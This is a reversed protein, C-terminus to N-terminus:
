KQVFNCQWKQLNQSLAVIINLGMSSLPRLYDEKTLGECSFLEIFLGVEM